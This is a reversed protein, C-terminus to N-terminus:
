YRDKHVPKHPANVAPRNISIANSKSVSSAKSSSTASASGEVDASVNGGTIEDGSLALGAGMAAGAAAGHFFTKLFSPSAGGFESFKSCRQGAAIAAESPCHVVLGLNTDTGVWTDSQAKVFKLRTGDPLDNWGVTDFTACATLAMVLFTLWILTWITRM